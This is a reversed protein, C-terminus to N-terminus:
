VDDFYQHEERLSEFRILSIVECLDEILYISIYIKQPKAIEPPKNIKRTIM